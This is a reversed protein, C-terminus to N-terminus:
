DGGGDGGRGRYCGFWLCVEIGRQNIRRIYGVNAAAFIAAAPQLVCTDYAAQLADSAHFIERGPRYRETQIRRCVCLRVLHPHHDEGLLTALSRDQARGESGYGTLTMLLRFGVDAMLM